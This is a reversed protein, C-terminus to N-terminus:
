FLIAVLGISYASTCAEPFLWFFSAYFALASARFVVLLVDFVLNLACWSCWALSSVSLAIENMLLWFKPHFASTQM